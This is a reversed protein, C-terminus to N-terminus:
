FLNLNLKTLTVDAAGTKSQEGSPAERDAAALAHALDDLTPFPRGHGVLEDAAVLFSKAGATGARRLTDLLLRALAGAEQAAVNGVGELWAARAGLKNVNLLLIREGSAAKATGGRLLRSLRGELRWDVLGAGGQLPGPHDALPIVIVDAELTDISEAKQHIKM